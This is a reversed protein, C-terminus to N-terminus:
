STRRIIRKLTPTATGRKPQTKVIRKSQPVSRSSGCSCGM